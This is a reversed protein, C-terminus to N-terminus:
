VFIKLKDTFQYFGQRMDMKTKITQLKRLNPPKKMLNDLNGSQTHNTRKFSIWSNITQSLHINTM